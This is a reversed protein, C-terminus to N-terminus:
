RRKYFERIAGTISAVESDSLQAASPLWLGRLGIDDSVPHTGAYQFAPQQNIPPYMPRTGIGLQRM